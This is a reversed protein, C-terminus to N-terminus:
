ESRKVSRKTSPPRLVFTAVFTAMLVWTGWHYVGAHFAVADEWNLIAMFMGIYAFYSGGVVYALVRIVLSSGLKPYSQVWKYIWKNIHLLM